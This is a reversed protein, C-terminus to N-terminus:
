INLAKRRKEIFEIRKKGSELVGPNMEINSKIDKLYELGQQVEEHLKSSIGTTLLINKNDKSYIEAIVRNIENDSLIVMIKKYGLADLFDMIKKFIEINMSKYEMANPIDVKKLLLDCGDIIIFYYTARSLPKNPDGPMKIHDIFITQCYNNNGKNYTKDIIDSYDTDPWGKMKKLINFCFTESRPVIFRKMNVEIGREKLYRHLDSKTWESIPKGCEKLFRVVLKEYDLLSTIGGKHYQKLWYNIKYSPYGTKQSVEHVSFGRESKPNFFLDVIMFIAEIKKNDKFITNYERLEKLQRKTYKIIKRRNNECHIKKQM